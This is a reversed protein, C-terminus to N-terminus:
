LLAFLSVSRIQEVCEAGSVHCIIEDPKDVVEIRVVAGPNLIPGRIARANPFSQAETIAVDGEADSHVLFSECPRAFEGQDTPAEGNSGPPQRAPLICKWM